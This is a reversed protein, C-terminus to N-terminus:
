QLDLIDRRDPVAHVRPQEAAAELLADVEADVGTGGASAGTAERRETM